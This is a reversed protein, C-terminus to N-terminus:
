SKAARGFANMVIEAPLRMLKPVSTWLIATEVGREPYIQSLAAAYAGMQRLLGEPTDDATEPVKSNTKYDVALIRRDKVLLRDITGRMRPEGPVTLHASVDVEALSGQSFLWSLEPSHLIRCAQNILETTSPQDLTPEASAILAAGFELRQEEPVRPLHELLLHLATGRALATEEDSGGGGELTKAGGLGSPIVPPPLQPPVPALRGLWEPVKAAASTVPRTLGVRGGQWNGTELRLGAGFGFTQQKANLSRLGAAVSDYWSGPKADGAGCVILWNEARTMAVYLLRQREKRAREADASVAAALASPTEESRTRWFARGSPAELLRNRSGRDSRLTDPLIVIPAELGKAGHVTMVRVKGAETDPQRKVISDDSELWALFGTLSPVENREYALALSLLEDVADEVEIGLRAQLRRRGDHRILIRELLDYPRLFDAHDRLDDLYELTGRHLSRAKRLVSWLRREGRGHALRFLADESWGLLPSRLATALSLDDEPLALFSLLARLDRVALEDALKIVDAGAIPLGRTKCARIIARFLDGAGSRGQVLILFDGACIRRAEGNRDVLMGEPDAILRDIEDAIRRALVQSPDDPAARDVPDSWDGPDPHESKEVLPWLDVRGPMRRHFPLHMSPGGLGGEDARFTADVVSLIAEASRFSHVLSREELGGSGALRRALKERHTEFADADAGQFSYISQKRDGVIFITRKGVHQGEGTGFEATIREILQWQRPSTDQSEDVLVHDIGADMRYQVWQAAEVTSLLATARDVLDDFDLLGRRAKEEEYAPLLVSAFCHLAYCRVAAAEALRANRAAAVRNMMRQLDVLRDGLERAANATPINSRPQGDGKRLLANCLVDLDFDTPTTTDIGDLLRGLERMTASEGALVPCVAAILESESGDFAIELPSRGDLGHDARVVAMDPVDRFLRRNSVVERVLPMLGEGTEHKTLMAVADTRDITALDQLLQDLLHAQTAEDMERFAPSVGAELPFRRLLAACFSHITQIKLGGPTEIARAFLTRARALDRYTDEGLEALARVLTTDPLMAWEGLRSFLRNQMEGAAAKTYTLCLINQPMTGRLLLRAVRDILVKTKGSGANASLWTSTAPDAAGRQAASPDTM